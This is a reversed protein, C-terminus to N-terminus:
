FLTPGKQKEVLERAWGGIEKISPLTASRYQPLLVVRLAFHRSVEKELEHVFSKHQRHFSVVGGNDTEHLKKKSLKLRNVDDSVTVIVGYHPIKAAKAIQAELKLAEPFSFKGPELTTAAVNQTKKEFQFTGDHRLAGYVPCDNGQRIGAMLTCAAKSRSTSLLQTVQDDVLDYVSNVDWHTTHAHHLMARRFLARPIEVDPHLYIKKHAKWYTLLLEMLEDTRDDFAFTRGVLKAGSYLQDSHVPSRMGCNTMDRNVYDVKDAGAIGVIAESLPHTESLIAYVLDFDACSSIEPKMKTIRELTKDEHSVGLIKTVSEGVHSYSGHGIDHLLAAAKMAKIEDHSVGLYAGILPALYAAGVLHEFRKHTAAPYKLHALALQDIFKTRQVYEHLVLREYGTLDVDVGGGEFPIRIKM